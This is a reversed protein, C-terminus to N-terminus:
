IECENEIDPMEAAMFIAFFISLRLYLCRYRECLLPTSFNRFTEFTAAQEAM